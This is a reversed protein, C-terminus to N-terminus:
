TIEQFFRLINSLKLNEDFNEFEFIDVEDATVLQDEVKGLVTLVALCLKRKTLFNIAMETDFM